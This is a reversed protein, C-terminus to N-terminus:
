AISAWRRGRDPDRRSSDRRNPSPIGRIIARYGRRSTLIVVVRRTWELRACPAGRVHTSRSRFVSLFYSLSFSLSLFAPILSLDSLCILRALICLYLTFSVRHFLLFFLFLHSLFFSLLFLFFSGSRRHSPSSAPLLYLHFSGDNTSRSISRAATWRQSVVSQRRPPLGHPPPSELLLLLLGRERRHETM